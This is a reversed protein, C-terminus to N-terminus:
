VQILTQYFSAPCRLATHPETDMPDSPCKQCKHTEVAEPMSQLDCGLHRPPMVLM